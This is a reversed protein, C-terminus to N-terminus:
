CIREWLANEVEIRDLELGEFDSRTVIGLLKGDVVVPLHRFGGDRMLRLADIAHSDPKITVPHPTMAADLRATGADGGEGMMRAADRGTFIGILHQARDTVLVAGVSRECMRRCALQVTADPQLVLPDQGEIINAICRNTM